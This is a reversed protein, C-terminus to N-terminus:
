IQKSIELLFLIFPCRCTKNEFCFSDEDDTEQLKWSLNRPCAAKYYVTSREEYRWWINSCCSARSVHLPIDPYCVCVFPSRIVAKWDEAWYNWSIFLERISSEMIKATTWIWTCIYKFLVCTYRYINKKNIHIYTHIYTHVYTHICAHMCPHMSAHICPHMSAHICTHMCAHM